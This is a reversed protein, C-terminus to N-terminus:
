GRNRWIFGDLIYHTLQPLALLPVLFSLTATDTISWDGFLGFFINRNEKWIFLDWLGEEFYALLLLSAVFVPLYRLTFMKSLPKNSSSKKKGYAWILAIYPVGHTVVNTLTFAMDGNFMVIGIYWSLLTGFYLLMKPINISGYSCLLWVEKILFAFISLLYFVWGCVLVSKNSISLFDGQMFWSFNRPNCHWYLLPFLTAFYIALVDIKVLFSSVIPGRKLYLLFIGYQQRVFHFVALYALLRWFVIADISYLVVSFFFGLIPTMTYLIPRANRESADFYTKFLTSYVHAVDIGIILVVWAWLPVEAAERSFGPVFLVLAIVLFPPSLIWCLDFTKSYIWIAQQSSM